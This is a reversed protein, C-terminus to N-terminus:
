ASADSQQNSRATDMATRLEEVTLPPRRRHLMAHCNACVPILDEAPNVVTGPAVTSIMEKHHVEIFGEGLPGYAVGFDFGCAVCRAGHIEICASRNLASREYRRIVVETPDGEAEGIQPREIPELPMLALAAGLLRGSWTFALRHLADPSSSDILFPGKQLSLEISNWFSPWSEPNLPDADGDNLRFRVAAGDDAASRIFVAFVARQESTSVAMAKLLSGAFSGPLFEAKIARWGIAVDVSFGRTPALDRPLFRLHQGSEDDRAEGSLSVGFRESLREALHKADLM